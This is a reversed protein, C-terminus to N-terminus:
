KPIPRRTRRRRTARAAEDLVQEAWRRTDPAPERGSWAAATVVRGVEVLREDALVGGALVAAYEAPTEAPRRPRGRDTGVRTLHAFYRTAWPLAALRRRRLVVRRAVLAIACAVLAVVLPWFRDWARRLRAWQSDQQEAAAIRGSPDFRQWGIGTFPVEVWTHADGARVVFDGGFFPRHGPLFGAAVRSPIGAARTLVALATALREPTTPRDGFLVSDVVDAGAALPAADDALTVAAALHDSVAVVADYASPAAATLREVLSRARPSLPPDSRLDPQGVLSADPGAARLDDATAAVRSTEATYVAGRGLAPVPRVTGDFGIEAGGPLDYSHVRPSGVVVGLYAAEVRIRQESINGPFPGDPPLRLPQIGLDPVTVLPASRRWRRGDWRDFTVARLVGAPGTRVHLLVQDPDGQRAAGAEAPDLTDRYALPDPQARAPEAGSRAETPRPRQSDMRSALLAGALLALVVLAAEGAVRRPRGPAAPGGGLVPYRGAALTQSVVLAVAAAAAAVLLVGVQEGRAVEPGAAAVVALAVSLRVAGPRPWWWSAAIVGFGAVASLRSGLDAPLQRALMLVLVLAILAVRLVVKARPTFAVAGVPHRGAAVAVVAPVLALAYVAPAVLVPGIRYGGAAVAVAVAAM